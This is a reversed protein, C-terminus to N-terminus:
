DGQQELKNKRRQVRNTRRALEAFVDHMKAGNRMMAILSFYLVDAAEWAADARTDAESLEGAEELLKKRLMEPDNFLKYTFSATDAGKVREELRAIVEALNREYGFCTHTEEHCFGPPGQDVKFRLADFDCDLYISILDQTAGSTAGKIWLSNRSRSWYTGVRKDIAARLSEENSYALGLAIGLRDVIVTAFLGDERDTRLLQLITDAILENLHPGDVVHWDSGAKWDAAIRAADLSDAAEAVHAALQFKETPIETTEPLRSVLMHSAGANLMRFAFDDSFTEAIPFIQIECFGSAAVLLKELAEVDAQQDTRIAVRGLLGARQVTESFCSVSDSDSSSLNSPLSLLPVIM